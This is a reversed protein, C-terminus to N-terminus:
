SPKRCCIRSRAPLPRTSSSRRCLRARRSCRGSKAVPRRRRRVPRESSVAAGARRRLRHQGAASPAGVAVDDRRGADRGADVHRQVEDRPELRRAARAHRGASCGTRGAAAPRVRATRSRSASSRRCRRGASRSRAPATGHPPPRSPRSRGRPDGRLAARAARRGTPRARRPRPASRAADHEARQDDRECSPPRLLRCELGHRERPERRAAEHEADPETRRVVVRAEALVGVPTRPSAFSSSPSASTRRRAAASFTPSGSAAPESGRRARRTGPTPSRRRAAAVARHMADLVRVADKRRHAALVAAETRRRGVRHLSSSASSGSRARARSRSRPSPRGRRRGSRPTRLRRRSTTSPRSTRGRRRVASECEGVATGPPEDPRGLRRRRPVQRARRAPPGRSRNRRFPDVLLRKNQPGQAAVVKGDARLRNLELRRNLDREREHHRELHFHVHMM